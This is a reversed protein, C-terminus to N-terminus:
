SNITGEVPNNWLLNRRVNLYESVTFRLLSITRLKTWMFFVFTQLLSLLFIGAEEDIIINCM